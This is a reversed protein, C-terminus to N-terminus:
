KGNLDTLIEMKVELSLVLIHTHKSAQQFMNITNLGTYFFLDTQIAHEEDVMCLTLFALFGSLEFSQFKSLIPTELTKPHETFYLTFFYNFM